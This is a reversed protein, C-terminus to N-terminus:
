MIQLSCSHVFCFKNGAHSFLGTKGPLLRLGGYCGKGLGYGLRQFGSVLHLQHAKASKLDLIAGRARAAIGGRAFADFDGSGLRRNELRALAQLVFESGDSDFVM